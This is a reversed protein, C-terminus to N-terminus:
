HMASRKGIRCGQAILSLALVEIKPDFPRSPMLSPGHMPGDLNSHIRDGNETGKGYYGRKKDSESAFLQISQGLGIAYM